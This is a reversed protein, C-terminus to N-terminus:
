ILIDTLNLITITSAHATQNGGLCNLRHNSARSMAPEDAIDSMNGILMFLGFDDVSMRLLKVYKVQLVPM